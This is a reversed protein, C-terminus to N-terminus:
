LGTDPCSPSSTRLFAMLFSTCASRFYKLLSDKMVKLQGTLLEVVVLKTMDLHIFFVPHDGFKAVMERREINWVQVCAGHNARFMAMAALPWALSISTVPGTEIQDLLEPTSLSWLKMDKGVSVLRDNDLALDLVGYQSEHPSWFHVVELTELSIFSMEGTMSGTIIMAATVVLCFVSSDHHFFRRIIRGEMDWVIVTSDDSAGVIVSGNCDVNCLGSGETM